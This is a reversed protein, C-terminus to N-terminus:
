LHVCAKNTHLRQRGEAPSAKVCNRVINVNGALDPIPCISKPHFHNKVFNSKSSLPKQHFHMKMFATKSSVTWKSSITKSHFQKKIFRNKSSLSNQHFHKKIFTYKVLHRVGHRCPHLSRTGHHGGACGSEGVSDRGSSLEGMQELQLARAIRTELPTEPRQARRGAAQSM